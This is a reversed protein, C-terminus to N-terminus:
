RQTGNIRYQSCEGGIGDEECFVELNLLTLSSKCNVTKLVKNPTPRNEVDYLRMSSDSSTQWLEGSSKWSHLSVSEM